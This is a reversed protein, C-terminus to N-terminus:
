LGGLASLDESLNKNTLGNLFSLVNPWLDKWKEAGVTHFLKGKSSLDQVFKFIKLFFSFVWKKM